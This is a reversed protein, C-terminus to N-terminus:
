ASDILLHHISPHTDNGKERKKKEGRSEKEDVFV